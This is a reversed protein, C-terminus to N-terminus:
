YIVGHWANHDFYLATQSSQVSSVGGVWEGILLTIPHHVQNHSPRSAICHLYDYHGQCVMTNKGTEQAVMCSEEDYV